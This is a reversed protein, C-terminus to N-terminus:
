DTALATDLWANITAPDCLGHPNEGRTGYRTDSRWGSDERRRWICGGRRDSATIWAETLTSVGLPGAIGTASWAAEIAADAEQVETDTTLYVGPMLALLLYPRLRPEVLADMLQVVEPWRFAPINWHADVTGLHLEGDGRQLTYTCGVLYADLRLLYGSRLAFRISRLEASGSEGPVVLRNLSGETYGTFVQWWAWAQEYPTELARSVAEFDLLPGGTADSIAALNVWFEPARLAEHDRIDGQRWEYRRLTSEVEFLSGMSPREPARRASPATPEVAQSLPFTNLKARGREGIQANMLGLWRLYRLNLCAELAFAGEDGIANRSLNLSWLGRLSASDALAKVGEATLRCDSLDLWRLKSAHPWKAIQAAGEDGIALPQGPLPYRSLSLARLDAALPADLLRSLRHADLPADEWFLGRLAWPARLLAALRDDITEDVRADGSDHLAGSLHLHRLRPFAEVLAECAAVTLDEMGIFLYRLEALCPAEALAAFGAPTMATGELSLSLLQVHGVGALARAYADGPALTSQFDEEIRLAQVEAMCPHALLAAFDAARTKPPRERVPSLSLLGGQVSPQYGRQRADRFAELVRRGHETRGADLGGAMWRGLERWLPRESSAMRRTHRAVAAPDFAGDVLAACSARHAARRSPPIEFM